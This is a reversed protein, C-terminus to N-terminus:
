NTEDKLIVLTNRQMEVELKGNSAEIRRELEVAEDDWGFDPARNIKAVLQTNSLHGLKEFCSQQLDTM